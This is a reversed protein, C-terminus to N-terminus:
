GQQDGGRPAPASEDGSAPLDFIPQRTRMAGVVQAFIWTLTGAITTLGLWDADVSKDLLGNSKLAVFVLALAVVELTYTLLAVLLSAAPLVTAVVNVTLAGFGFFVLVLVAGVLAGLLAPKGAFVAGAAVAVAGVVLVALAAGRVGPVAAPSRFAPTATTM